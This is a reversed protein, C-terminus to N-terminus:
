APKGVVDILVATRLAGFVLLLLIKHLCRHQHLLEVLNTEYAVLWGADALLFSGIHLLGAVYFKGALEAMCGPLVIQQRQTLQLAVFVHRKRAHHRYDALQM